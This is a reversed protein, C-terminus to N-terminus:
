PTLSRTSNSERAGRVAHGVFLLAMTVWHGEFAAPWGVATALFIPTQSFIMVTFQFVFLRVYTLVRWDAEGLNAFAADAASPAHKAYRDCTPPPSM